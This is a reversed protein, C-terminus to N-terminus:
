KLCFKEAVLLTILAVGAGALLAILLDGIMVGVGEWEM